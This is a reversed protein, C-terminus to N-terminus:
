KKEAQSWREKDEESLNKWMRGLEKTINVATMDPCSEKLHPRNTACFLGYATQKKLKGNSSGSGSSSSSSKKEFNLDEMEKEYRKKDDKAQSLFSEYLDKNPSDKGSLIKWAEGLKKTVNKGSTDEGAKEMEDKIENRMQSCYFIYASRPKKPGSSDKKGSSKKEKQAAILEEDSPSLYSEIENNYREKDEVSQKKLREVREIDKKKDSATLAKWRVGLERTIETPKTDTPMEQKVKEREEGCFFIYPSKGRKPKNPDKPSKSKKEKGKEKKPIMTKAVEMVLNQFNQQVENEYWESTAEGIEMDQEIMDSLFSLVYENIKNLINSQASM